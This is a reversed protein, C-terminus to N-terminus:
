DRVLGDFSYGGDTGGTFTHLVTEKGTRDVEFVVGCYTGGGFCGLEGGSDATSYLNGEDDRIL